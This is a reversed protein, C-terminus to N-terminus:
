EPRYKKIMTKLNKTTTNKKVERGILREVIEIFHNREKALNIARCLIKVETEKSQGPTFDMNHQKKGKLQPPLFHACDEFTKARSAALVIVEEFVSNINCCSRSLLFWGRKQQDIFQLIKENNKMEDFISRTLKRNRVSHRKPNLIQCIKEILEDTM